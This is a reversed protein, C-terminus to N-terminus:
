NENTNNEMERQVNINDCNVTSLPFHKNLITLRKLVKEWRSIIGAPRSLELYMSMRLFNPSAYLIGAVRLSDKKLSNFIEKPLNSIDAIPMYNVFVKFTGHHQGSKAEVDTFGNKYYIDALEKAYELANTTFFDYDPIEVEKNYFQDEKPLINNIATGGYCILDKQKIFNEVIEIITQVEESNVTRKGMKEEAKDVAMRLIALECDQFTLGKCNKQKTM